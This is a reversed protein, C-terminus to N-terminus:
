REDAEGTARAGAPGGSRALGELLPALHRQYHRWRGVSRGYLPQRVQWASATAVVRQTRHFDLCGGEWDLGLFAILRRSAGELDAVVDEYWVDQWRLPLVRTWHAALRETEGFRLACDALDYSFPLRGAAFRQFYCSLCLDRPDRRCFIVRAGPFLTAIVGLQFLNDPMKDAVRVAGGGTERLRRLHDEALRRVRARDRAAVAAACEAALAGIDKREGVGFVRSHSAAIQEILSTGSRPMGVIFVPLESPDGWHAVSAFYGPTFTAIAEDVERRLAEGDFRLGSAALHGRYLRNGEEYAAFAEDFRDADDLAKGLAFAAAAREEEPRDTRAALSAARDLESGGAALRGCAALDRYTEAYDPDAALARRFAELAEDIRGLARLAAGLDHWVAANGPNLVSARRCSELAAAVEGRQYLRIGLAHHAPAFAPELEIARRYCGEAEDLRGLDALVNGLNTHRAASPELQLARRFAGEADELKGLGRLANGFNNHAEALHPALAVARSCSAAAAAFDGKECLLLGLNNYAPACNADIALARRYSQEAEAHRGAERLANGLSSHAGAFQPLAAVAEGILRIAGESDGESLAILGLLHLADPNSPAEALVRRYGSAAEELRGAQHHRVAAALEAALRTSGPPARNGTAAM